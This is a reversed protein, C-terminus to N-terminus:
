QPAGSSAPQSLLGSRELWGTDYTGARFDPHRLIALHLAATTHVGEVELEALAAEMRQIAAARDPGHAIIKAFMSDYHPSIRDGERLHTDVRIGEGQPVRLRTVTGPTPRFGRTPDEANIRCEIAHGEATPAAGLPRNAAVDLQAAVLDVGTVAETITHEVQLRTNMEMFWLAGDADRLMEVTGAGRYALASCAARVREFVDARRSDEVAVSPTEELLKQHRRQVSCEREGLVHIGGRGDGLVQLEIHRGDLVLKELYLRGDGFASQSEASADRWAAELASPEFVRRMGRGGGGSVAKILVPYGLEDAVKHAAALDPLWGSSGPIPPLGLARMTARAQAKDAMRRMTASRPGVFSLRAAECRAAFTPNESLFGWGPHLASCATRTAADILADQDLYARNDPLAVVEDAEQLWRLDKDAPSAVAVAQIGLARCTRLVRVAVEGRNALLLRRFM